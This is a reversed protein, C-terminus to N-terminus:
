GVKERLHDLVSRDSIFRKPLVHALGSKTVIFFHEETEDISRIGSVKTHIEGNEHEEKVEDETIEFLHRGTSGLFRRKTLAAFVKGGVFIVLLVFVFIVVSGIVTHIRAEASQNDTGGFWSIGLIWLFLAFYLWRMKFYKVKLHRRM